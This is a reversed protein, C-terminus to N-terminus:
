AEVAFLRWKGPIGRLEHEGHDEFALGSGAVLDTVTRSVVVEGPGASAAVRQGIHVAIGGVDDGRLEVEGTHLGARVELGLRATGERLEVACRIARAPGDFTALMGDGTSKVFRGGFQEVRDRTLQDHRDLLERWRRDGLERARETSGVIDTFLVTALVRDPERSPRSGTLFEEIEDLDADPSGAWGAHDDGAMEVYRAGPIHEALYRGQEVSAVLDGRRHIVLTPVHITPLVPRIDVLALMRFMALMSGPSVAQRELKAWWNRSLPESPAAILQMTGQGWVEAVGKITGEWQEATPGALEADGTLRVQGNWLVLASTRDPHTAAFLACMMEGGGLLVAQESGAADLVAVLDDMQDELTPLPVARDSLGTGRRDLHIVRGLTALRRLLGAFKPEEWAVEINSWPAWLFVVDRPGTGFVQFALHVDGNKAYRIDPVDIL